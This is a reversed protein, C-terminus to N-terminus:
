KIIVIVMELFIYTQRLYTRHFPPPPPLSIRLTCHQTRGYLKETPSCTADDHRKFGCWICKNTNTKVRSFPVYKSFAHGRNTKRFFFFFFWLFCFVEVSILFSFISTLMCQGRTTRMNVWRLTIARTTCVAIRLERACYDNHSQCLKHLLKVSVDIISM